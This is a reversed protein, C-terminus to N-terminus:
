ADNLIDRTIVIGQNLDPKCNFFLQGNLIRNKLM